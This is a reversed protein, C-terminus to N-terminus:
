PVTTLERCPGASQQGRAPGFTCPGAWSPLSITWRPAVCLALEVGTLAPWHNLSLALVVVGRTVAGVSPKRAPEVVGFDQMVLRRRVLLWTPSLAHRVAFQLRTSPSAGVWGGCLGVALLSRTAGRRYYSVARYSCVPGLLWGLLWCVAIARNLVLTSGITWYFLHPYVVFPLANSQPACLGVLVLSTLALALGHCGLVWLWDRRRASRFRRELEPADLSPM